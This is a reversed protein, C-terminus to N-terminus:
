DLCAPKATGLTNAFLLKVLATSDSAIGGKYTVCISQSGITCDYVLERGSIATKVYYGSYSCSDAGAATQVATSQDSPGRHSYWYLGGGIAAVLTVVVLLALLTELPSAKDPVNNGLAPAGM